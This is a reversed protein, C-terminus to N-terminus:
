MSGFMGIDSAALRIHLDQEDDGPETILLKMDYLDGFWVLCGQGGDIVNLNAYAACSCNKLCEERCEKLNMKEDTWFQLLDPLKVSKLELFGDQKSCNLPTERICGDAWNFADWEEQSRPVFGTLCECLVPLDYSNCISNPGCIGYNDCRDKRAEYIIIWQLTVKDWVYRQALGNYSMVLISNTNDAGRDMYTVENSNLTFTPVFVNSTSKWFNSNFRVGNWIGTRYKKILGERLVFQPPVSIDIGFTFNGPSPDAATKWSTLQRHLGTKADWGLKMGPLLTDSPYDFSQWVYGDSGSDTGYFLVLNGSNLLKATPEKASRTPNSNSSWIINGGGNLLILNGDDASFTLRGYSDNIPRGRNGVWVITQPFINKYWIGLYRHKSQSPSFFGLIFSGGSSLLEQGDSISQESTITDVATCIRYCRSLSVCYVLLRFLLKMEGKRRDGM